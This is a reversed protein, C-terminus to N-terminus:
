SSRPPEPEEDEPQPEFLVERATGGKRLRDKRALVNYRADEMADLAPVGTAAAELKEGVIRGSLRAMLPEVTELVAPITTAGHVAANRQREARAILRDFRRGFDDLWTVTNPGSATRRAAERVLRQGMTGETLTDALETVHELLKDHCITMTRSGHVLLQDEIGSVEAAGDAREDARIMEVAALTTDVLWDGLQETSWVDKLYRQASKPWARIDANDRDTPLARELARVM